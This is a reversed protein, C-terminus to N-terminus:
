DYDEDEGKECCDSCRRRTDVLLKNSMMGHFLLLHMINVPMEVTEVGM